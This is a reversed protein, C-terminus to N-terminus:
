AVAVSKNGLMEQVAFIGDRQDYLHQAFLKRMSHTAIKDNLGAKRFQLTTTSPRGEVVGELSHTRSEGCMAKWNLTAISAKPSYGCESSDKKM